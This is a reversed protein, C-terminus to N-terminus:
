SNTKSWSFVCRARGIKRPAVRLIRGLKKLVHSLFNRLDVKVTQKISSEVSTESCSKEHRM